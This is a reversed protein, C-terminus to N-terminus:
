NILCGGTDFFSGGPIVSYRKCIDDATEIVYDPLNDPLSLPTRVQVRRLVDNAKATSDIVAQAGTLEIPLNGPPPTFARITVSSAVYISRIRLHYRQSNLSTISMICVSPNPTTGTCRTPLITGQATPGRGTNVNQSNSGNTCPYLFATFTETLMTDRKLPGNTNVIDARLIGTNRGWASQASLSYPASCAPFSTLNAARNTKDSWTFEVRGITEGNKPILPIVRSEDDINTFELSVPSTDVLLCTVRNGSADETMVNYIPTIAPPPIACDTKEYGPDNNRLWSNAANIGSEATYFAQTSLQRDLVQRQERRIIRAFAIVILSIVLMMVITVIISVLGQENNQINNKFKYTNM